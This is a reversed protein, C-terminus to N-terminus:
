FRYGLGILGTFASSAPNQEIRTVVIDDGTNTITSGSLSQNSYKLYNVEAYFYLGKDLIKRYGLGLVYGGQRSDLSYGTTSDQPPRSFQIQQNTYGIKAYLLDQQTLVYGPTLFLNFRNSTKIQQGTAPVASIFEPNRASFANTTQPLFSFDAGIGLMWKDSVSFYYGVGVVLPIGSSRQSGARNTGSSFTSDPFINTYRTTTDNFFNAEYGSAVQGYFGQFPNKLSDTAADSRAPVFVFVSAIFVAFSAPTKTM